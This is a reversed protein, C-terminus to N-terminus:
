YNRATLYRYSLIVVLLIVSVVIITVVLASAPNTAFASPPDALNPALTGVPLTSVTALNLDSVSETAPVLAPLQASPQVVPLEPSDLTIYSYWVGDNGQGPDERWVALLVNGQCVVARVDHPAISTVLVEPNSWFGNRFTSHWIGTLATYKDNKLSEVRQIFLAHIAHNSDVVLTHEGSRGLLEYFPVEPKKWTEGNDSSLNVMQVPRGAPIPRGGFPNGNNYMIVVEEGNDVISPFSPGFNDLGEGRQNLNIPKAWQGETLDYRAYYLSQDLGTNTVINWTAHIFGNQGISLDASYTSLLSNYTLFVPRVKSWNKGSDKSHVSYLGNGAINGTYVVVLNGQYDGALAASIPEVAGEGIMVPRSWARSEDANEIPAYSYYISSNITDGGWFIVHAVGSSDIFAGQIRAEGVPSLLVDIPKTWGGALSWQRYLIALQREQNGVWQSAFVHVTRNRDAVLIPTFTDDSYGPVKEDPRWMSGQQAKAEYPMDILLLFVGVLFLRFVSCVMIKQAMFIRPLM